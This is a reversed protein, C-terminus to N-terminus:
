STGTRAAGARDIAARHSFAARLRSVRRRFDRLRM